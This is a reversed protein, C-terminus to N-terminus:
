ANLSPFIVPVSKYLEHITDEPVPPRSEDLQMGAQYLQRAITAISGDVSHQGKIARSGTILPRGLCAHAGSGFSLGWPTHDIKRHPNFKDPEPGFREEDINAPIFLLAVREGERIVRGTKLTVDELAQRMRAPSAVTLRLSEFAASRIFNDDSALLDRDSPHDAFWSELRLVFLVLSQATTQSAAVLFLCVERLTLEEGGSWVDPHLLTMTIVDIPATSRDAKGELIASALLKRREYSRSFITRNLCAEAALAREIVLSSPENSWEVTIGSTLDKVLKILEDAAEPNELGDLGAVAGAIRYVCRQAITTLDATIKGNQDAPQAFLERLCTDISPKLHLNSMEILRADSFLQGLINKRRLHEKGDLVTITQAMLTKRIEQFSGQVFKQSHLIETIEEHDSIQALGAVAPYDLSTSAFRSKM